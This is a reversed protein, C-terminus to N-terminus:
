RAQGEVAPPIHYLYITKGVKAVPTQASLWPLGPVGHLVWSSAAIWGTAPPPTEYHWEPFTVYSPSDLLARDPFSFLYVTLSDIGRARVTDALRGVDQGYDLDSTLLFHESNDRALENFDALYDPHARVSAWVLWAALLMAVARGMARRRERRWLWAAATGALVALLPYIPLLHRGGIAIPSRMATVLLVLAVAGPVAAQWRREGWALRLTVAAGTLALALLALPAKIALVLPFFYWPGTGTVKGLAYAPMHESYWILIALGHWFEPAPLVRARAVGPPLVDALSVHALGISGLTGVHFSYGAWVTLAIIGLVALTPLELRRWRRVKEESSVPEIVLKLVLMTALSAPVFVLASFKVLVAVGCALGLLLTARRDPEDLWRLGAIVVAPLMGAIPMDTTAIGAHALVPPLLTLVAVAAAAIAPGFLTRALWWTSWVALVFFPLVGLRALALTRYYTGRAHLEAVGELKWNGWGQWRVGQLYPGTAEMMRALPPHLKDYRVTGFQLWDLGSEIHVPEDYTASVTRYTSVIRGVAVLTVFLLWALEAGRVRGAPVSDERRAYAV